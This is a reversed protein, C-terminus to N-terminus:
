WQDTSITATGARPVTGIGRPWTGRQRYHRSATPWLAVTSFFVCLVVAQHRLVIDLTHRYGVLMADFGAEIIGYLRGHQKTQLRM